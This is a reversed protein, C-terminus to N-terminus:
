RIVAIKTLSGSIYVMKECRIEQTPNLALWTQVTPDDKAEGGDPINFLKSFPLTNDAVSEYVHVNFGGGTDGKLSTLRVFVNSEEEKIRQQLTVFDLSPETPLKIPM